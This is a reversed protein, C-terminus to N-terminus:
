TRAEQIYEKVTQEMKTDVVAAVVVMQAVQTHHELDQEVVLV